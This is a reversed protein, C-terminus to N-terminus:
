KPRRLINRRPRDVLLGDLVSQVRSLEATVHQRLGANERLNQPEIGRIVRQADEVLSDLQENSRVNLQRFRTLFDTLNEIASDRFIKPKGDVNGALRDTLHSVLKSLEGIFADEAMRVAENFRQQVRECEQQYLEPNLQRLYDPPQVSPFDVDIRFLGDLSMPYDAPNYLHGLKDRAAQRLEEYHADLVAVAETLETQFRTTRGVFEDIGDRRILRVGPEPYPLSVGKWYGLLRNRIATVSKFAPHGTDLLKKAASLYRDEAGFAGAAQATQQPTLSKRVGFWHVSVRAAAMTARLRQAPTTGGHTTPETTVTSM